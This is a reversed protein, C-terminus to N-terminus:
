NYVTEGGKNLNITHLLTDVQTPQLTVINNDSELTVKQTNVNYVCLITEDGTLYFKIEM